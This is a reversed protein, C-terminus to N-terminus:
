APEPQLGARLVLGTRRVGPDEEPQQFVVGTRPDIADAAVDLLPLLAFARETLRPHPVTLAPTVLVLGAAWLVDLDLTRAGWRNHATRVRGDARELALLTALIQPASSTTSIRIAANLYDPQPPGVPATEYVASCARLEFARALGAAANQLHELRDGLNSGLGIVVDLVV